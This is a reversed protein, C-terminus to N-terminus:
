LTPPPLAGGICGFYRRRGFGGAIHIVADPKFRLVLSLISAADAALDCRFYEQADGAAPTDHIGRSLDVGVVFHGAAVAARVVHRGVKGHSGTILLRM